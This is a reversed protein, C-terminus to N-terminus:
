LLNLLNSLIRGSKKKTILIQSVSFKVLIDCQPWDEIKFSQQFDWLYTKVLKAKISFWFFPVPLQTLFSVKCGISQLWLLEVIFPFSSNSEPTISAKEEM